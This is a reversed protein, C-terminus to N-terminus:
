QNDIIRKYKSNVGFDHRWKLTEQISKLTDSLTKNPKMFAKIWEDNEEFRKLDKANLENVQISEIM